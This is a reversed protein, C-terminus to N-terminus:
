FDLRSNGTALAVRWRWLGGRAGRVEGAIAAVAGLVSVDKAELFGTGKTESLRFGSPQPCESCVTMRRDHIPRFACLNDLTTVVLASLGKTM